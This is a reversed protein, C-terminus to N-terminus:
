LIANMFVVVFQIVLWVVNAFTIVTNVTFHVVNMFATIPQPMAFVLDRYILAFVMGFKHLKQDMSTSCLIKVKPFSGNEFYFNNFNSMKNESIGWAIM